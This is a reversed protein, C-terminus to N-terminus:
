AGKAETFRKRLNEAILPPVFPTIDGGIQAIERVTTSNLYTYELSPTLFVVELNPNLQRNAVAM